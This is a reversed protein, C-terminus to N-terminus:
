KILENAKEYILHSEWGRYLFYDIFKKRRKFVSSESLTDAKKRTLEEFVEVYEADEIEALALNINAQSIDRKKLEIKLRQRGWHKIRFKGRVFSKAFREENLYNHDLLHVMIMDIAEPIMLMMVLKQRVEQHCREQYACYHEIKKTAELVTYTKRNMM